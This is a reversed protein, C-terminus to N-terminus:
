AGMYWRKQGHLYLVFDAYIDTSQNTFEFQLTSNPKIWRDVPLVFPLGERGALASVQVGDTMLNRGSGTDTLKVSVIPVLQTAHTLTTATIRAFFSLKDIIFYSDAEMNINVTAVAAAAFTQVRAQYMYLDSTYPVNRRELDLVEQPVNRVILDSM